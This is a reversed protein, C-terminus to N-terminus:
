SPQAETPKTVEDQVPKLVIKLKFFAPQKQASQEDTTSGQLSVFSSVNVPEQLVLVEAVRDDAKINAVFQNLSSLASRYDGTFESIQATLFAVEILKTPDAPIGANAVVPEAGAANALPTFKDQDNINTDNTLLWYLRDIQVEDLVGKATPALAM